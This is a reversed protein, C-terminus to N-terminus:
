RLLSLNGRLGIRHDVMFHVRGHGGLARSINVGVEDDAHACMMGASYFHGFNQKSMTGIGRGARKCLGDDVGLRALNVPHSFPEYAV